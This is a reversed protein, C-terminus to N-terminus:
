AGCRCSTHCAQKVQKSSTEARKSSSGRGQGSCGGTPRGGARGACCDAAAVAAPGHLQSPRACDGAAGLRRRQAHHAPRQPACRGNHTTPRRCCRRSYRPPLAATSRRIAISCVSRSSKRARQSASPSTPGRSSHPKRCSHRSRGPRAIRCGRLKRLHMRSHWLAQVSARGPRTLMRPGHLLGKAQLRAHCLQQATLVMRHNRSGFDACEKWWPRQGFGPKAWHRGWRGLLLELLHAPRCNFACCCGCSGGAVWRGGAAM